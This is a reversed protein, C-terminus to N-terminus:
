VVRPELQLVAAIRLRGDWRRLTYVNTLRHLVVAAPGVLEWDATLEVIDRSHLAVNRVGFRCERVGLERFKSTVNQFNAVLAPRDSFLLVEKATIVAMPADYFDVIADANLSEFAARYSAIFDLPEMPATMQM